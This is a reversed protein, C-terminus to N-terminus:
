HNSHNGNKSGEDDGEGLKQREQPGGEGKGKRTRGREGGGEHRQVQRPDKNASRVKDSKKGPSQAQVLSGPRKPPM